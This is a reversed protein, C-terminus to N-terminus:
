IKRMKRVSTKTKRMMELEDKLQLKKKKLKRLEEDDFHRSSEMDAIKDDLAKHTAEIKKIHNSLSM